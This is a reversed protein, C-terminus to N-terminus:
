VSLPTFVKKGKRGRGHGYDEREREEPDDVTLLFLGCIEGTCSQGPM